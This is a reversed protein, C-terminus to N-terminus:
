GLAWRLAWLVSMGVVITAVTSRTWWAVLGAAVGALLRANHMDLGIKGPAVFVIAPVAIATMMAVPVHHLARQLLSPMDNKAFWAIFSVRSVYNLAGVVLTVAWLLLARDV